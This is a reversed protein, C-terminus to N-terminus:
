QSLDLGNGRRAAAQTKADAMVSALIDGPAGHRAGCFESIPPYALVRSFSTDVSSAAPTSNM